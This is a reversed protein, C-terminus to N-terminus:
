GHLLMNQNERMGSGDVNNGGIIYLNFQKEDNKIRLEVNKM